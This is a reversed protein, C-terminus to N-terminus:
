LEETDDLIAPDYTSTERMLENDRRSVSRPTLAIELDLARTAALLTSVDFRSGSEMAIITARSLGARAALDRQTLRAREREGRLAAGLTTLTRIGRM